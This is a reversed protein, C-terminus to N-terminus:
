ETKALSWAFTSRVTKHSKHSLDHNVPTLADQNTSTMRTVAQGPPAIKDTVCMRQMTVCGLSGPNESYARKHPKACRKSTNEKGCRRFQQGLALCHDTHPFDQGCCYCELQSKRQGWKDPSHHRGTQRPYKTSKPMRQREPSQREKQRNQLRFAQERKEIKGAEMKKAHEEAEVNVRTIEEIEDLSYRKKLLRRGSGRGEPATAPEITTGENTEPGATTQDPGRPSRYWEPEGPTTEVLERVAPGGETRPTTKRITHSDEGVTAAAKRRARREETRRRLEETRSRREERRTRRKGRRRPFGQDKVERQGIRQARTMPPQRPLRRIGAEGHFREWPLM